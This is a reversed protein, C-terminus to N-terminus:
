DSGGTGGGCGFVGIFGGQILKSSGRAVGNVICTHVVCCEGCLGCLVRISKGARQLRDDAVRREGREGRGSSRLPEAPVRGDTRSHNGHWYSRSDAPPLTSFPSRVRTSKYGLHSARGSFPKRSCTVEM